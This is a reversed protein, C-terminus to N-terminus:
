FSEKALELYEQLRRRPSVHQVIDSLVAVSEVGLQWIQRAREPNVGGIGVLPLDSSRRVRELFSLGLVGESNEKSRTPFIPGVAIYDVPEHCAKHFQELTHTSLGIIAEKGLVERARSVPVDDQGLHVGAAGSLMALDIRDNVLLCAGHRNALQQIRDLQQLLASDDLHGKDRVQLWGAGGAILERALAWHDGDLSSTLPYIPPPVRRAPQENGCM